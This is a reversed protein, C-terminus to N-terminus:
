EISDTITGSATYTDGELEYEFELDIENCDDSSEFEGFDIIDTGGVSISTDLDYEQGEVQVSNLNVTSSAGNRLEMQIEGEPNLGFNEVIIDGGTFGSANHTCQGQFTAFLAGGVIGATLLLVPLVFILLIAGIVIWYKREM